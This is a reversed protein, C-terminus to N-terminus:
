LGSEIDYRCDMILVAYPSLVPLVADPAFSHHVLGPDHLGAACSQADLLKIGLVCADPMEVRQEVPTLNAVWVHARAGDRWALVAIDPSSATVRMATKGRGLNLGRLVHFVPWYEGAQAVAFPRNVAWLAVADVGARQVAAYYGLTWAASFQSTHRPDQDSLTLREHRPNPTLHGGYPNRWAGIATTTLRYPRGHALAQASRVIDGLSELSEMVSLDDAAHVTPSTAHTLYDFGGLHPRCRNLETFYTPVGGGILYGPLCRSALAAVADPTLGAPWPGDPQYSELYAAPTALIGQPRSVAVDLTAALQQLDALATDDRVIALLWAQTEIRKCLALAALLREHSGPVRLDVLLDLHAGGVERALAETEVADTLSDVWLGHGLAPLTRGCEGDIVIRIVSM